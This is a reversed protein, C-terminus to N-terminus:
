RNAAKAYNKCVPHICQKCPEDYACEAAFGSCAKNPPTISWAFVGGLMGFFILGMTNAFSWDIWGTEAGNIHITVCLVGITIGLLRVFGTLMIKQM